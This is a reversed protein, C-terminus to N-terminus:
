RFCEKWHVVPMPTPGGHEYFAASSHLYAEPTEALRWKEQLPNRHIYNLKQLVMAESFCTKIDSSPEWVRFWQGKAYRHTDVDRQLRILLNYDKAETLRDIIVKAWWRKCNGLIDNISAGPPAYMLLHVHNPMVVYGNIACGNDAWRQLKEYISDYLGTKDILPIHRWCVFTCFFIGGTSPKRKGLTM